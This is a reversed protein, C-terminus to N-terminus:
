GRCLFMINAAPYVTTIEPFVKKLKKKFDTAEEKNNKGYLRNFVAVGGKNLLKKVKKVFGTTNFRKPVGAGVYMDVCVLDFKTTSLHRNTSLSKSTLKGRPKGTTLVDKIFEEADQLWVKAGTDEWDLYKRGLDVIVSDIDVGYVKCKPWLGRAIHAIGGGGFGLVLVTNPSHYITSQKVRKLSKEWIKKALGGSQPLGGGKIYVGWGIERVVSLAGNIPSTAEELIKRGALVDAASM